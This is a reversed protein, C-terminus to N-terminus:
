MYAMWENAAGALECHIFRAAPSAEGGPWSRVPGADDRRETQAGPPHPTPVVASPGTVRSRCGPDDQGSKKLLPLPDMRPSVVSKPGIGPAASSPGLRDRIPVERSGQHLRLTIPRSRSATMTRGQSGIAPGGLPTPGALRTWPTPGLEMMAKANAGSPSIIAVM